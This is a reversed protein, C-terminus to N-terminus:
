VLGPPSPPFLHELLAPFGAFSQPSGAGTCALRFSLRADPLAANLEKLRDISRETRKLDERWGADGRPRAPPFRRRAAIRAVRVLSGARVRIELPPPGSWRDDVFELSISQSGDSVRVEREGFATGFRPAAFGRSTFFRLFESKTQHMFQEVASRSLKQFTRGLDAELRKLSELNGATSQKM